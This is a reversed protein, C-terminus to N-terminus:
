SDFNFQYFPESTNKIQNWSFNYEEDKTWSDPEKISFISEDVFVYGDDDSHYMMGASYSYFVNFHFQSYIIVLLGAITELVNALSAYKFNEQRDHKVNNYAQYWGLSHDNKWNLFPTIIKREPRWVDIEVKYESLRLSKEIKYYDKINLNSAKKYGNSFLIAKCNAEFETAARLLLEYNRHSYAHINEDTPEIYEFVKKLDNVILSYARCLSIRDSAYREDLEYGSRRSGAPRIIRLYPKNM